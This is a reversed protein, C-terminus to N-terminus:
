GGPITPATPAGSDTRRRSIFNPRGNAPPAQPLMSSTSSLAPRPLYKRLRCPQQDNPGSTCICKIQLVTVHDLANIAAFRFIDPMCHTNQTRIFTTFRKLSPMMRSLFFRVISTSTRCVMATGNERRRRLGDRCRCRGLMCNLLRRGLGFLQLRSFPACPKSVM